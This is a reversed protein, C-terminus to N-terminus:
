LHTQTEVTAEALREMLLPFANAGAYWAGQNFQLPSCGEESCLDAIAQAIRKDSAGRPIMGTEFAVRRIWVDIPQLAFQFKASVKDELEYLSVVDRLYFAAIKPGVQVIGAENRSRQIEDYHQGIEGAEIRRVSYAVINSDPLRDVFRLSSIVMDVDRAKSVKGKGVKMQLERRLSDLDWDALRLDAHSFNLDLVELAAEEVRESVADTRGQYFAKSFFFRLAARWDEILQENTWDSRLLLKKRYREGYALIARTMMKNMSM